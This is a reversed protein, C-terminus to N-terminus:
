KCISLGMGIGLLEPLLSRGSELRKREWIGLWNSFRHLSKHISLATRQNKWRKMRGYTMGLLEHAIVSDSHSQLFGTLLLCKEEETAVFYYDRVLEAYEIVLQEAGSQKLQLVVMQWFGPFANKFPVIYFYVLKQLDYPKEEADRKMVTRVLRM